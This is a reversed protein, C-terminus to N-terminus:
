GKVDGDGTAIDRLTAMDANPCGVAVQKLGTITDVSGDFTDAGDTIIVAVQCRSTSVQSHLSSSPFSPYSLFFCSCSSCLAHSM